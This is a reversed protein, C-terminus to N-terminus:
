GGPRSRLYIAAAVFAAGLLVCLLVELTGGGRGAFIATIVFMFFAMVWLAVGVLRSLPRM